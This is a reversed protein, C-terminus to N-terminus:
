LGVQHKLEQWCDYCVKRRLPYKGKQHEVCDGESWEVLKKAQAQAVIKEKQYLETEKWPYELRDYNEDTLMWDM